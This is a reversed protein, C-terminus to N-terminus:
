IRLIRNSLWSFHHDPHFYDVYAVRLGQVLIPKLYPVFHVPQIKVPAQFTKNESFTCRNTRILTYILESNCKSVANNRAITEGRFQPALFLHALTIFLYVLALALVSLRFYRCSKDPKEM